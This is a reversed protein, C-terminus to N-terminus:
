IIKANKLLNIVQKELFNGALNELENSYVILVMDYPLNILHAQQRVVEFLRRRIRNRVVAKKSVKKSVVVAVRYVDRKNNYVYKLACHQGRVTSGKSHVFRLSALGHFRNKSPVM